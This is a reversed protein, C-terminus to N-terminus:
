GGGMLLLCVKSNEPYYSILDLFNEEVTQSLHKSFSALNELKDETGPLIWSFTKSFWQLFNNSFGLKIGIFKDPVHKMNFVHAHCDVFM